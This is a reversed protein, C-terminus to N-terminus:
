DEDEQKAEEAEAIAIANQEDEIASLYQGEIDRILNMNDAVVQYFFNNGEVFGGNRTAHGLLVLHAHHAYKKGKKKAHAATYVGLSLSIEGNKNSKKVWKQWSDRLLGTRVPTADKIFAILVKSVDRLAAKTLQEITYECRDVNNLLTVEGTKSKYKTATKPGPAAL